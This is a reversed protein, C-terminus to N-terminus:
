VSIVVWLNFNLGFFFLCAWRHGFSVAFSELIGLLRIISDSLASAVHCSLGSVLRGDRVLGAREMDVRHKSRKDKFAGIAELCWDLMVFGKCLVLYLGVDSSCSDLFMLTASPTLFCPDLLSVWLASAEALIEKQINVDLICSFVHDSLEMKSCLLCLVGPYKKDYLKKRVAVPLHCHVAKMLYSQLGFSKQSTFGVLMHSDSYWVISTATWNVCGVLEGPIVDCGSGAEWCIHCVSRHLDRAFHHANDSLVMGDAKLFHEWVRALIFFQSRTATGAASNAKINGYVGSHGKVKKLAKYAETITVIAPPSKELEEESDNITNTEIQADALVIDLIENDDLINETALLEDVAVTY